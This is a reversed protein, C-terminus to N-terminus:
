SSCSVRLKNAWSPAKGAWGKDEAESHTRYPDQLIKLAEGVAQYNGREVEEIVQQAVWNRLVYRPNNSAMTNRRDEDTRGEDLIRARYLEVFGKFKESNAVRTLAWFSKPFKKTELEDLSVNGLEWFTLTFDAKTEKMMALLRDVLKEDEPKSSLLGLKGTFIKLYAEKFALDYRDLIMQIQTVQTQTLMPRLASAFMRLNMYGIKPQNDYSYRGDDDSSNPVFGPNYTELFGFPGYDITVSLISMNDTNMVGHTFGVGQWQAIMEATEEVVRTLLALPSDPLAPDIDPFHRTLIHNLLQKLAETEGKRALIEFSGFRFWSQALRAVIATPELRVHGSYFPDRAVTEEGVVLSASRSTRVGLAHMAEAGLFERVSSRVVARGDGLRSYPTAGSGKLQIEWWSGHRNVYHGLLHARGDGLQEAWWGFQHGGYRHALPTSDPHIWSGCVLERFRTSSAVSPDLDLLDLASPSVAALVTEGELPTPPVISFVANPVNRRVYNEKVPDLPFKLFEESSLRWGGREVDSYLAAGGCTEERCSKEEM